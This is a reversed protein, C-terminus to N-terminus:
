LKQEEYILMIGPWFDYTSCLILVHNRDFSEVHNKMIDMLREESKPNTKWECLYHEILTNYVLQSCDTLNRVLHELFDILRDPSNVFLHIFDECNARDVHSDFFDNDSRANSERYNTCLKKLLETTEIPCKEMLMLGYKKLSAEAHIFKLNSVYTLAETFAQQDETLISLSLDHKQNRKALSLAHEASATRCVKIAVDLDFIIDPNSDNSLFEKLQFFGM